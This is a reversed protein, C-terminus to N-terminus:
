RPKGPAVPTSRDYGYPRHCGPACSGGTPTLKLRSKVQWQGFRAGAKSMLKEGDAGHTEHCAVCSRGKIRDAVHVFHLNRDGNRFKTYITTQPYRLLNKDHCKLCLDYDGERYPAYFSVPYNGVLLRRYDSAHPDHCGDCKGQALPGHLKKGTGIEKGIDRLQMKGAGKADHCGLCIMKQEGAMLGKADSYHTSHCNSCGKADAIPQHVLKKSTMKKAVDKHCGLCLGPMKEKLLSLNVSSHPDHCSTCPSTKVPGHVRSAGKMGKAFDEHCKLCLAQIDGKVLKKSDSAHPDHCATCAGEAVPGHVRQRTFPAQDHCNFCLPKLDEESELLFKGSAGHPDHCSICEGEKVPPHVVKKKGPVDHCGSCLAGGKGALEFSKAKERPHEKVKQM